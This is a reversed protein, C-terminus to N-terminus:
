AGARAQRSLVVIARVGANPACYQGCTLRVIPSGLKVHQDITHVERIRIISCLVYDRVRPM